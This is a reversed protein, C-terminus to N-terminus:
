KENDKSDGERGGIKIWQKYVFRVYLIHLFLNSPHVIKSVTGQTRKRM